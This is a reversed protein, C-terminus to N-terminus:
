GRAFGRLARFPQGDVAGQELTRRQAALKRSIARWRKLDHQLHADGTAERVARQRAREALREGIFAGTAGGCIMAAMALVMWFMVGLLVLGSAFPVPLVVVAILGLAVGLQRGRAVMSGARSSTREIAESEARGFMRVQFPGTPTRRSPTRGNEIAVAARFDGRQVKLQVGHGRGAPSDVHVQYGDAVPFHVQWTQRAWDGM